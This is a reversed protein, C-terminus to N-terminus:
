TSKRVLLHGFTAEGNGWNNGQGLVEPGDIKSIDKRMSNYLSSFDMKGLDAHSSPEHIAM